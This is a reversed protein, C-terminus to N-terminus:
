KRGAPPPAPKSGAPGSEPGTFRQEINTPPGPRPVPVPTGLLPNSELGELLRGGRELMTRGSSVLAGLDPSIKRLNAMLERMDSMMARTDAVLELTRDYFERNRMLLSLTNDTNTLQDFMKDLKEAMVVLKDVQGQLKPNLRMQLEGGEHSIPVTAHQERMTNFIQILASAIRDNMQKQLAKDDSLLATLKDDARALDELLKDGNALMRQVPSDPRNLQIVLDSTNETLTDLRNLLRVLFEPSIDKPETEPLMAIEGHNMVQAGSGGASIRVVPDGILNPRVLSAWSDTKVEGASAARVYLHAITKGQSDTSVSRVRGVEVAGPGFTVRAGVPVMTGKAFPARLTIWSEFWGKQWALGAVLAGVLILPLLIFIGVLRDVIQSRAPM